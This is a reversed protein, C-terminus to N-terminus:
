HVILRQLRHRRTPDTILVVAVGVAVAAGTVPLLRRRRPTQAEVLGLQEALQPGATTLMTALTTFTAEAQELQLRAQQQAMRRGIVYGLRVVPPAARVAARRIDRDLVLGSAATRGLSPKKSAGFM